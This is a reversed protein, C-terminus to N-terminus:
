QQSDFLTGALGGMAQGGGMAGLMGPTASPMYNQRRLLAQPIGGPTLLLKHAAQALAARDPSLIKQMLGGSSPLSAGPSGPEIGASRSSSFSRRSQKIHKLLTEEAKRAQSLTAYDHDLKGIDPAQHLLWDSLTRVNQYTEGKAMGKQGEMRLRLKNRLAQVVKLDVVDAGSSHPTPMLGNQVLIKRIPAASPQDVDALRGALTQEMQDGIDKLSQKITDLRAESALHAARGLAADAGINRVSAGMLEPNLAAPVTTGPALAERAALAAPAGPPLLHGTAKAVSAEPNFRNVLGGVVKGLGAGVLPLAGGLLAGGAAGTLGAQVPKSDSYGVGSAGSALAGTAAGGLVRAGLGAGKAAAGLETGGLAASALGGGVEAALMRKPAVKKAAAYNGRIEDRTTTYASDMDQGHALAKMGALAGGLEDEFGLTAGMGAARGYDRLGPSMVDDLGTNIEQKLYADIAEDPVGDGKMKMVMERAKALLEPNM